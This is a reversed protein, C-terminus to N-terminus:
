RSPSQMGDILELSMFSRRLAIIPATCYFDRPRSFLTLNPGGLLTPYTSSDGVVPNGFTILLFVSAEQGLEEGLGWLSGM